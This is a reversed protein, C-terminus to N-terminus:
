HLLVQKGLSRSVMSIPLMSLSLTIQRSSNCYSTVLDVTSKRIYSKKKKIGLTETTVLFSVDQLPGSWSRIASVTKM